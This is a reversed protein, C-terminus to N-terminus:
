ADVYIISSFGDETTPINLKDYFKVIVDEPVHRNRDLNRQLCTELPTNMFVAVTDHEINRFRHILSNRTKRDANVCDLCINGHTLEEAADHCMTDFILNGKDQNSEDGLIIKRYNDSSFVKYNYIYKHENAWTSKGSGPIGVMLYITNM